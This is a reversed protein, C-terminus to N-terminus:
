QRYAQAPARLFAAFHNLCLVFSCLRFVFVDSFQCLVCCNQACRKYVADPNIACQARAAYIEAFPALDKNTKLTAAEKIASQYLSSYFFNRVSRLGDADMTVADKDSAAM